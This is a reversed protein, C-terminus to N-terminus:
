AGARMDLWKHQPKGNAAITKGLYKFGKRVAAKIAGKEAYTRQLGKLFAPTVTAHSDYESVIAQYTGDEALKFGLDNSASGIFRRRVIVNAKDARKDGQYGFLNTAVDHVEIDAGNYMEKLAEVLTDRDKYQTKLTHYSSVKDEKERSASCLISAHIGTQLNHM